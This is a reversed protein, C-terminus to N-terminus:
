VRKLSDEERIKRLRRERDNEEAAADAKKKEEDFKETVAKKIEAVKEKVDAITEEVKAQAKAEQKVAENKAEKAVQKVEEAAKTVMSSGSSEVENVKASVATATPINLERIQKQLDQPIYKSLDSENAKAILRNSSAPFFYGFAMASFAVPTLFRLLINRRSSLISGAFGAVVVYIAAPMVEEERVLVSKISTEADKEFDVVKNTVMQLHHKMGLIQRDTEERAARLAEDLRTPEEKVMMEPEPEDYIPLKQKRERGEALAIAGTTSNLLGISAGLAVLSKTKVSQSLRFM